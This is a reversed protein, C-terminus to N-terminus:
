DIIAHAADGEGLLGTKEVDGGGRGGGNGSFLRRLGRSGLTNDAPLEVRLHAAQLLVSLRTASSAAHAHGLADVYLLQASTPLPAGCEEAVRYAGYGDGSWANLAALGSSNRVGAGCWVEETANAYAGCAAAYPWEHPGAAARGAELADALDHLPCAAAAAALAIAAVVPQM